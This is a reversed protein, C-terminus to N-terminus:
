SVKLLVATINDPGGNDKAAAIMSRCKEELTGGDAMTAALNEEPVVGHLGDSCLLMLMGPKPEVRYTQVRLQDSVGIAMTLVHRMPHTKLVSEELGLRRGVENVWSQDETITHLAGDQFSYVRSDGVSAVFLETDNDLVAILTTGMGDLEPDHEAAMSVRTNAEAFATQLVAPGRSASMGVIEKVTDVAMHSAHEGAQAGGMGDAVVYLGMAPALLYCDENNPRVCGPDSVGFSEIM